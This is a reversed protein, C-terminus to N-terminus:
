STYPFLNPAYQIEDVFVPPPTSKFFSSAEELAAQMLIPDDLTLYPIGSTVTKLMTTKGVQRPGTVLIAGFMGGLRKITDELHRIIYM